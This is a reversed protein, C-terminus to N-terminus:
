ADRLFLSAAGIVGSDGCLKTPVIKLGRQSSAFCRERIGESAWSCLPGGGSSFIGGGLILAQPDFINVLSALAISLDSAVEKLTWQAWSENKNFAEFVEVGSVLRGAAESGRRGIATGSCYAEFCGHNGCKCAEGGPHVTMHGIECAGDSKGYIMKGEIIVGGGIGTGFTLLIYNQLGAGEGFLGEGYTACKADNDMRVPLQALEEVRAGLPFENFGPLHPTQFIMRKERSMPGPSGIGIGLPKGNSFEKSLELCMQAMARATAEPGEASPTKVSRRGHIKGSEDVYAARVSSGGLDIGIAAKV